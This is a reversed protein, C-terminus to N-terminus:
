GGLPQSQTLLELCPAVIERLRELDHAAAGERDVAARYARYAAARARAGPELWGRLAEEAESEALLWAMYADDLLRVGIEAVDRDRTIGTGHPRLSASDHSAQTTM